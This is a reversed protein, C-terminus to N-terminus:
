KCFLKWLILSSLIYLPAHTSVRLYVCTYAPTGVCTSVYMHYLGFQRCLNEKTETDYSYEM